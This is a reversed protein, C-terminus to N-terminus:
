FRFFRRGKPFAGLSTTRDQSLVERSTGALALKLVLAPLDLTVDTEKSGPPIPSVSRLVRVAM